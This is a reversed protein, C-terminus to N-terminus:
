AKDINEKLKWVGAAGGCFGIPIKGKFIIAGIALGVLSYLTTDLVM